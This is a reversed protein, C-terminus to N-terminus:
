AERRRLGVLGLLAFLGGIAGAPGMEGSTACGCGLASWDDADGGIGDGDTTGDPDEETGPEPDEEPIDSVSVGYICVNDITWGGFTLGADSEIEWSLSLADTEGDVDLLHTHPAWQEDQHHEEGNNRDTEWNAWIEDGNVVFRAQDYYGDEVNLWRDFQIVVRDWGAIDIDPSTLANWKDDQYEGNFNGGGLDNGWVYDGSAAKDPDGGAGIPTGWVWDDAGEQEDGDLLDHTYGGDDAEFDECYIETLDGVFFSLPNIKGGTPATVEVGDTSEGVVYYHVVTADAVAPISGLVNGDADIELDSEEWSEGQDTSYMVKGQEVSFETCDPLLNVISADLEYADDAADQNDLPDHGIEIAGASGAPGLGHASFAEYIACQNPTGDGLDGNDDDAAIFADYSEPITPGPKLGDVFIENVVDYGDEEGYDEELLHWLDWVAGAFIEGNGHVDGDTWDEPYTDGDSVDRIGSGTTMFYPAIIADGTQLFSVTDGIGESISGDWSGAELSYYHFGHGWEHYNVDAIRGTNNCGGGAKYFNVDGDYYANCTSNLNVSSRLDNNVMGVEPAYTEGWAKVDHLFIYSDIEAISAADTTWLMDDAGGTLEGNDGDRNRVTVYSGRLYTTLPESGTIDFSGDWDTYDSMSDTSLTALPVPSISTDGDVTRTDHHATLTGSVFRVENYVDLLEGTMADVFSVWIGVPEATRTRVQWTLRHDLGSGKAVPLVTLSAGETTHAADYAPGDSIAIEVASAAALTPTTHAVQAAGPHVNGVIMFVKGDRVMLRLGGRYVEARADDSSSLDDADSLDDGGGELGTGPEGDLDGGVTAGDLSVAGTVPVYHRVDVVWGGEAGMPGVGTIELDSSDVGFLDANRALFDAAATAIGDADSAGLAIGPGWASYPTATKEDFRVQWGNGEGQVFAQWADGKRLRHQESADFHRVRHPEQGIYVDDAPAFALAPLGLLLLVSM